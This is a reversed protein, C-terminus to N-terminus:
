PAAWCGGGATPKWCIHQRQSISSLWCAGPRRRVEIERGGFMTRDLHYIADDADRADLFEIFGFGKPRGSDARRAPRRVPRHAATLCPPWPLLSPPHPFYTTPPVGRPLCILLSARCGRGGEAARQRRQGRSAKGHRVAREAGEAQERQRKM